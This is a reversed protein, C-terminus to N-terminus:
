YIYSFRSAQEPTLTRYSVKNWGKVNMDSVFVTGDPDVREVFGVHGYYDRPPTWIVAGAQPTNGVTYGARQALVKWTSANGLNSPIPRGIEARRKAVWWTCYGYDYGNVGYIASNGGWSFRAGSYIGTSRTSRSVPQTADPIVIKQGVPLGGVEADNFAIIQEKSVRYTEALKEATDGSKVEYVIGNVPPITLEKGVAVTDGSLGNSWRISDSTVGFKTAITGVTEGDQVKYQRIDKRSKLATAVVQPKAIIKDDAPTIALQANVTDANNQVSSLEELKALQAVQVAIDASSLEDLPSTVDNSNALLANQTTSSKAPTNVVFAIVSGLM